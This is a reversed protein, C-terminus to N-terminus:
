GEHEHGAEGLSDVNGHDSGTPEGITAAQGGREGEFVVVRDSPLRLGELKPDVALAILRAEEAVRGLRALRDERAGLRHVGQLNEALTRGTM